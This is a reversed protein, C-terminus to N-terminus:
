SEMIFCLVQSTLRFNLTQCTNQSALNDPRVPCYFHCSECHRWNPFVSLSVSSVCPFRLYPKTSPSFYWLEKAPLSTRHSDDPIDDRFPPRCLRIHRLFPFSSKRLSLPLTNVPSLDASTSHSCGWAPSKGMCSRSHPPWHAPTPLALAILYPHCCLHPWLCRQLGPSSNINEWLPKLNNMISQQTHFFAHRM